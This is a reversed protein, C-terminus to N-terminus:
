GRESGTGQGVGVRSGNRHGTGIDRGEKRRGKEGASRVDGELM